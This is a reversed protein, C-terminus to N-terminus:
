PTLLFSCKIASIQLYIYSLHLTRRVGFSDEDPRNVDNGPTPDGLYFFFCVCFFVLSKFLTLFRYALSIHSQGKTLVKM